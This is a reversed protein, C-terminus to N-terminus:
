QIKKFDNLIDGIKIHTYRQTMSIDSHGVIEKVTTIPVGSSILYTIYFHRAKHFTLNDVSTIECADQIDKLTQNTKQNSIKLISLDYNYKEAIEKAWPTLVACFKVGTKQRSKQIFIQGNEECFDEPQLKMCDCYAMGSGAAFCFLDRVKSVRESVFKKNLMRQLESYNFVEVEKNRKSIKIGNFPNCKMKNNDLAFTIITKLRVMMGSATTSQYKQNLKAYFDAIVSNNIENVQKDKSIHNFFQDRVLEYRRYVEQSIDVGIRKRLINLYEKFLSEITYSNICGNQIFEKITNVTVPEEQKVLEAQAFLVKQYMQEVYEKLPNTKRSSMLKSFLKPDEKYPLALYTRKGNLIISMEVPAKGTKTVKSQRCVFNINFTTRM